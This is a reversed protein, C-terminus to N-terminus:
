ASNRQGSKPVTFRCHRQHTTCFADSKGDGLSMIDDFVCLGHTQKLVEQCATDCECAWLMRVHSTSNDVKLSGSRTSFRQAAHDLCLLAETQHIRYWRKKYRSWQPTTSAWHPQHLTWTSAISSTLFWQTRCQKLAALAVSAVPSMWTGSLWSKNWSQREM